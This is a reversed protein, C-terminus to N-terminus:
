KILISAKEVRSELDKRKENAEEVSEEIHLSNSWEDNRADLDDTSEKGIVVFNRIEAIHISAIIVKFGLCLITFWIVITSITDTCVMCHWLVPFPSVHRKLVVRLATARFM